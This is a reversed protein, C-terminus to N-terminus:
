NKVFDEKKFIDEAKAPNFISQGELTMFKNIFEKDEGALCLDSHEKFYKIKFGYDIIEKLTQVM